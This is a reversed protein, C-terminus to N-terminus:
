VMVALKEQPKPQALIYDHHVFRLKPDGRQHASWFYVGSKRVKFHGRVFHARLQRPDADCAGESKFWKRDRWRWTLLGTLEAYDFLERAIEQTLEGSILKKLADSM